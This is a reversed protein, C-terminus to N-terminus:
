RVALLEALDERLFKRFLFVKEKNASVIFSLVLADGGNKFRFLDGHSREHQGASFKRRRRKDICHRTENGANKSFRLRKFTRAYRTRVHVRTGFHERPLPFLITNRFYNKGSM